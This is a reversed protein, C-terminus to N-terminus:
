IGDLLPHWHRKELKLANAIEIARKTREIEENFDGDLPFKGIPSGIASFGIGNEGTMQAIKKVEEDTLDLVHKDWVRRLEIATVGNVKLCDIQEQLDMSIEDAFASLEPM